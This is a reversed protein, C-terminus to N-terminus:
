PVMEVTTPDNTTNDVVSGYAIVGDGTLVEVTVYGAALDTQGAKKKFPQNEQKWEGPALGVDYSALEQGGADHLHIRVTAASAGINIVAVNSRYAANEQLQPIVAARGAGLGSTASNLSQGLTGDPYCAAGPGVQSFTRSTVIMSRDSAVGLAGSGSFGMQDVVDALIVQAGAPVSVNMRVPGQNAYLTVTVTAARGGTNLMGLDTRWASGQAGEAHSAVPIWATPAAAGVLIMPMTTPDNTTNDVVSGYAIVGDGTLVEAAVYGAALDTQGAKKKFPQNEQKWEGPELAVDYSTLETGAGDHLHVRVTAPGGGTNIVAVNTRYAANEQLQPIVAEQGPGIGEGAAISGLSQGLTGDPYCEAGSGVQSFTRSTAVLAGSAAIELAGSGSFEMQDVVDALILQTGQPVTRAMTVPGQPAHLTIMAEVAETGLNLLGLDTRWSSGQAGEAHSAVPVWYTRTEDGGEPPVWDGVWVVSSAAVEANPTSALSAYVTVEEPGDPADAPINGVLWVQGFSTVSLTGTVPRGLDPGEFDGEYLGWEGAGTTEVRFAMTQPSDTQIHHMVQVQDPPDVVDFGNGTFTFPPDFDSPSGGWSDVLRHTWPGVCTIGGGAYSKVPSFRSTLLGLIPPPDDGEHCAFVDITCGACAGPHDILDVLGTMYFEWVGADIPFRTADFDVPESTPTLAAWRTGAEQPLANHLWENRDPRHTFEVQGVSQSLDDTDWPLGHDVVALVPAEGPQMVVPLRYSLVDAEQLVPFRLAVFFDGSQLYEMIEEADALSLGQGDGPLYLWQRFQWASGESAAKPRLLDTLVAEASVSAGVERSLSFAEVTGDSATAVITDVFTHGAGVSPETYRMELAPGAPMGSEVPVDSFRFPLPGGPNEPDATLFEFGSAGDPPTWVVDATGPGDLGELAVGLETSAHTAKGDDVLASGVWFHSLLVRSVLGFIAWYDSCKFSFCANLALVAALALVPPRMWTSRRNAPQGNKKM